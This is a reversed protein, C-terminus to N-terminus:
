KPSKGTIKHRNAFTMILLLSEAVSITANRYLPHDGINTSDKLGTGEELNLEVSDEFSLDDDFILNDDLTGEEDFEPLYMQDVFTDIHFYQESKSEVNVGTHLTERTHEYCQSLTHNPNHLDCLNMISPDEPDAFDDAELAASCPVGETDDSRRNTSELFLVFM